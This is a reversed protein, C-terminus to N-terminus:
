RTSQAKEWVSIKSGFISKLVGIMTALNAFVFYHVIAGFPIKVNPMCAKAIALLYFVGQLLMCFAWFREGSLMLFFNSFIAAIMFICTNWRLYKHSFFKWKDIWGLKRFPKLYKFSNYSRNAIRIKRVFEERSGVAGKEYAKLAKCFRFELGQIVVNMSTCFDDLVHIPLARYLRARISFISGDAGMVAGTRSEAEKIFEEYRWYLGNSYASGSAEPNVYTLSGAIGGVKQNSYEKALVKLSNSSLMVNADTFIVVSCQNDAMAKNIANTKGLRNEVRLLSIRDAHLNEYRLVISETEDSSGDSVVTVKYLNHPYDIELLNLIKEEIVKEENYAAVIINFDIFAEPLTGNRQKAFCNGLFSIIVPYLLYIYVLVFLSFYFISVAYAM